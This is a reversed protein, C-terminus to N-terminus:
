KDALLFSLTVKTGVDTNSELQVNAEHLAAGHKVIALGLGTGPIGENRSKDVRYFREFVREQEQAPIGIGTDSVTLIANPEAREVVVTVKGGDRNYKIANDILNFIMEDLVSAIGMVSVPEGSVLLSIKRADAQGQLRGSVDRGLQLLDVPEMVPTSDGEDLKSLFLLDRVLAILRQAETYIQGAFGPIDERRAVGNTIIEAYGSIATLPTKLEHSVNATFERRLAEREQKETVDMLMVVAGQLKGAETVPNAFLQCQRVGIETVIEKARGGLAAEVTERFTQSRNLTLINSGLPSGAPVDLLAMASKNYSLVRGDRDLVLFGENMNETIAAFERRGRDLEQMHANIQARQNKIRRLLPLMEDYVTNYEPHELDLNDLPRMIRRTILSALLASMLFVGLGILAVMWFIRDYSAIISAITTSMRLVSGDDLSLAYYYIQERLTDSYRTIEGTGSSLADRVEPRNLHNDMQEPSSVSDFLVTGDPAIITLRHGARHVLRALYDAGGFEYGSRIYAAEAQAEQKVARSFDNYAAMTVLISTAIVAIGALLASFLFIRRRM